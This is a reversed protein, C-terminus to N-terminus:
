RGFLKKLPIIAAGLTSAREGLKSIVIEVNSAPRRLAKADIISRLTGLVLDGYVTFDKGLVIMSPNLTNILNSLAIGIYRTAEELVNMAAADGARAAKAIDELTIEDINEIENLSSVM